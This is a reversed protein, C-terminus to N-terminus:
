NKENLNTAIICELRKKFKVAEEETVGGYLVKIKAGNKNIQKFYKMFEKIPILEGNDWFRAKYIGDDLGRRYEIEILENNENM